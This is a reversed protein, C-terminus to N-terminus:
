LPIRDGFYLDMEPLRNKDLGSQPFFTAEGFYIVGNVNYLDVRVFRAGIKTSFDKAFKFMEDINSPKPLTFDKPAAVGLKNYRKLEWNRDFFYFKPDGLYRDICVLVCDPEGAFCYFKYDNLEGREDELYEEILIQPKINKYPWERNAYFYNRSLGREIIRRAKKYNFKNKDKCIYYGGSNHTCKIVFRNPLTNFDIESFNQYVGLTKVVYKDGFEQSIYGKVAQKDVLKTYLPNRDFLKLWQLKENLTKPNDLNLPKGMTVRYLIKLFKEDDMKKFWGHNALTQFLLKPNKIINKIKSM